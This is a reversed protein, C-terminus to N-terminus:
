SFTSNSHQYLKFKGLTQNIPQKMYQFGLVFLYQQHRIAQNFKPITLQINPLCIFNYITWKTHITYTSTVHKLVMQSMNTQSIPNSQTTTNLM